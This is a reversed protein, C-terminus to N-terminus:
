WRAHSITPLGFPITRPRGIVGSSSAAYTRSTAAWFVAASRILRSATSRWPIGNRPSVPPTPGPCPMPSTGRRPVRTSRAARRRRAPRRGRSRIVAVRVGREGRAAVIGSSGSRWARRSAARAAAASWASWPPAARAAGPAGGATVACGRPPRCGRRARARGPRGRSGAARGGARGAGARAGDVAVEPRGVELRLDVELLEARGGPEGLVGRREAVAERALHGLRVPAM